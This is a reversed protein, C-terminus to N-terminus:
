PVSHLPSSRSVRVQLLVAVQGPVPSVPSVAPGRQRSGAPSLPRTPVSPIHQSMEPTEEPHQQPLSPRSPTSTTGVRRQSAGPATPMRPLGEQFVVPSANSGQAGLIKSKRHQFSVLFRQMQGSANSFAGWISQYCQSRPHTPDWVGCPPTQSPHGAGQARGATSSGPIKRPLEKGDERRACQSSERSTGSTKHQLRPNKSGPM